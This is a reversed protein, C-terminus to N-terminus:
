IKYVPPLKSVLFIYVKSFNLILGMGSNKPHEKIILHLFFVGVLVYILLDFGGGANFFLIRNDLMNDAQAALLCFFNIELM